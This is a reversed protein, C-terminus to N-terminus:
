SEHAAAEFRLADLAVQDLCQNDVKLYAVQDSPIVVAEEVGRVARLRDAWEVLHEHGCGGLGFVVSSLYRPSPLRSAVVLWFVVACGCALFVADAGLRGHVWGGLAGGLFAGLFQSTSYAGMATGKAHAPAVKAIWSPLLAELVNFAVFFLWLMAAVMILSQEFGALLFLAVALVAVSSMLMTKMMRYREAAIICPLAVVISTALVPLYLHWHQQPDLGLRDRLVLPLVVFSATLIMHLVLIGIDLGVLRSDSLVRGLEAPVAGADRHVRVTVPNPVAAYLVVLGCCAMMATFWFIGALGFWNDIIPGVVLAASFAVGISMGIMAMVKVRQEERTLDAALAMVAASVAGSGQLARGLIITEISHAQAAVVSGVAFLVLGGAIVPKRGIHDSLVGFPVQLLAQTLGYAGIAIGVLLPTADPWREMHLALVPLIMFLGLMRFAFITALAAGIRREEPRMQNFSRSM